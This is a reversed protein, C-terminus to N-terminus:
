SKKRYVQLTKFLGLNEVSRTKELQTLLPRTPEYAFSGTYFLIHGGPKLKDVYLQMVELDTLAGYADNKENRFECAHFLTVVDFDPLLDRHSTYIDGFYCTYHHLLAPQEKALKIFAEYEPTSATISLVRNDLEPEACRIGVYHHGGSGMHYITKGKIANDELWEVFHVDCPCEAVRLGWYVDWTNLTAAPAATASAATM